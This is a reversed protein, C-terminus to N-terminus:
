DHRRIINTCRSEDDGDQQRAGSQFEIAVECTQTAPLPGTFRSDAQKPLTEHYLGIDHLLIFIPLTPLQDNLCAAAMISNSIEITWDHLATSPSRPFGEEMEM